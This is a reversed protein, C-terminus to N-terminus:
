LVGISSVALAVPAVALVLAAMGAYDLERQLPASGPRPYFRGTLALTTVGALAGCGIVMPMLTGLM